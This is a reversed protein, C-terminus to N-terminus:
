IKDWKREAEEVTELPCFSPIPDGKKMELKTKDCIREKIIGVFYHPCDPCAKILIKIIKM